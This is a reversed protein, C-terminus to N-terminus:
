GGNQLRVVAESFHRHVTGEGDALRLWLRVRVARLPVTLDLANTEFLVREVGRALVVPTAGNVRRQLENVGDSGTVLVFSVEDASWTASGNADISPVDYVKVVTVDPPVADPPYNQGDDGQAVSVFAPQLLVIERNPGADPEGPEAHEAAPDHAHNAFAADPNGDVFLYPYSKLDVTAFASRRLDGTIRSLADEAGMQLRTATGGARGLAGIQDVAEVMMAALLFLITASITLELLTFGARLGRRAMTTQTRKM